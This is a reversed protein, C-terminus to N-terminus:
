RDSKRSGARLMVSSALRGRRLATRIWELAFSGGDEASRRSPQTAQTSEGVGFKEELVEADENKRLGVGDSGGVFDKGCLVEGGGAM